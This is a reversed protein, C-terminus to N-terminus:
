SRKLKVSTVELDGFVDSIRSLAEGENGEWGKLTERFGNRDLLKINGSNNMNMWKSDKAMRYFEKGQVTIKVAGNLRDLTDLISDISRMENTSLNVWGNATKKKVQIEMKLAKKM